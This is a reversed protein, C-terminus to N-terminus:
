AHACDINGFIESLDGRLSWEILELPSKGFAGRSASVTPVKAAFADYGDM